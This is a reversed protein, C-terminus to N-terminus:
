NHYRRDLGDRNIEFAAWYFLDPDGTFFPNGMRVYYTGDETYEFVLYGHRTQGVNINRIDNILPWNAGVRGREIAHAVNNVSFIVVEDGESNFVTFMHHTSSTDQFNGVNEISVPIGVRYQRGDDFAVDFMVPATGFTVKRFDRGYYFSDGFTYYENPLTIRVDAEGQVSEPTTTAIQNGNDQTQTQERNGETDANSGCAVLAFMVSAMLVMFLLKKMM